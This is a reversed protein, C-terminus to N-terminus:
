ANLSKSCIGTFVDTNENIWLVIDNVPAILKSSSSLRFKRNSGFKWGWLSGSGWETYPCSRKGKPAISAPMETFVMSHM